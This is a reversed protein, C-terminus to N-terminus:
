IARGSLVAVSARSRLVYACEASASTTLTLLCCLMTVVIGPGRTTM